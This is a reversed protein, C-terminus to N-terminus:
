SATWHGISTQSSPKLDSKRVLLQCIEADGRQSAKFLPTQSHSDVPDVECHHDLLLKAM